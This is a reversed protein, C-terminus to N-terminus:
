RDLCRVYIEIHVNGLTDATIRNEIKTVLHPLCGAFRAPLNFSRLMNLYLSCGFTQLNDSPPKRFFYNAEEYEAQKPITKQDDPKFDGIRLLLPHQGSKSCDM